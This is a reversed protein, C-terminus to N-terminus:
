QVGSMFSTDMQQILTRVFSMESRTREFINSLTQTVDNGSQDSMRLINPAWVMSLNADDMKTHTVHEPASFVQLFRILYSLSLRNVDPLRGVLRQARESDHASDLAEFYLNFPILPEKLERFYLKLASAIVHIDDYNISLGEIPDRTQGRIRITDVKLLLFKRYIETFNRYIEPFSVRFRSDRSKMWTESAGSSAKGRRSTRNTEM